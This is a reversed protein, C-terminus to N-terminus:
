PEQQEDKEKEKENENEEEESADPIATATVEPKITVQLTEKPKDTNEVSEAKGVSNINVKVTGTNEILIDTNEEFKVEVTHTGPELGKCDIYATLDSSQISKTEENSAWVASIAVSSGAGNFSLELDEGLNRIEINRLPINVTQLEQKSITLLLTVTTIEQDVVSIGEPLQEALTVEEYVDANCNSVDYSISISKCRELERDGGTVEITAPNVKMAIIHYGEAPTGHTNVTIPVMKTSNIEVTVKIKSDGFTLNDSEIPKDQADYAKPELRATFDDSVGEVNVEVRVEEVREVLSEPGSVEITAKSKQINGLAHGEAPTGFTIVNVGCRKAAREELSISLMEVDSSLTVGEYNPCSLQIKAAKTVSLQSLDATAVINAASIKRIISQKGYATVNITGGTEIEYVKDLSTIAQENQVEVTINKFTKSTMPDDVNNVILWVTVALLAALLKLAFNNM